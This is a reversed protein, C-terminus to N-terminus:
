FSINLGITYVRHQPYDFGTVSSTEPDFGYDCLSDWCFLNTGEFYFRVKQMGVVRTWNKPLTYGVVLNRLRLYNVNKTYFTNWAGTSPNSSRVAPFKGKVWPSTPDFIDEHHWADNVAYSYGNYDDGIGWKVNWDAVWTNHFGGAFDAAFDIGKWNFGFNIGLTALPQKNANSHNWDYDSSAYGLPRLDFSNIIGDGNVDKYIVDGPVLDQNNNGDQIIPWNDIQEQSQFQGVVEYMWVADNKVNSWRDTQANRYKDWANYFTEGYNYLTKQRAFTFNVGAYYDFDHVRDAWRVSFDYGSVQDSNLNRMMANYGAELPYIVDTPTAPIGTRKRKFIDFETTLRNDFFGFDFGFNYMKVKMWTLGTQAIGKSTSGTVYGGTSNALPNTPMIIGGTGFTYGSMYAFDPYSSNFNTAMDDGMEGYSGRIKFNSMVAALPSKQFFPEESVRWAVSVSPFFGWQHHKMFRWSADERGAFDVIYRDKYSYGARFIFSATTINRLNNTVTNDESNNIINVFPNEVPNQMVCLNGLEQRYYEFGAVGTVHHDAAFIHDYNLTMQGTLENMDYKTRVRYTDAKTYAVNYIDTARDYTYEKWSKENNYTDANYYYYSFLAKGKLGDLPTQWELRLNTQLTRRHQEYLGATNINYAAMNHASDHTPTIFNIYDPNDNAYPRQTPVLFLLSARMQYYDDDGPLGPNRNKEIKGLVELGVKFNRTVNINLNSSLNTRNYTYEKFVADQDVHSLSVYYDAKESGGRVSANLYYQPAHKSVYSNYWDYGRYDEGTSPDYYHTRWKELEAKANEIDEASTLKGDNVNRMYIGRMYEYADLLKPYKTWQQWGVYANLDVQVKENRKGTKTTVLVVGNAAKVGYIAAAGDKLVSINEIDNIDLTNFANEDSMIGDIVYLLTGMNRIQISTASGPQASKQRYTIGSMKGVLAGATTSSTTRAIDTSSISSVSAAVTAKRQTAYGVVVVDSLMDTQERLTVNIAKRGGVSITQSEYGVYSFTLQSNAATSLSYRGDIDTVTGKANKASKVVVSVGVLPDGAADSVIGSVTLSQAMGRIPLGLLFLGLTISAFLKALTQSGRNPKKM